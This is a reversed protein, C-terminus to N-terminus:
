NESPRGTTSINVYHKGSAQELNARLSPDTDVTELFKAVAKRIGNLLVEAHVTVLKGSFETTSLASDLFRPRQVVGHM